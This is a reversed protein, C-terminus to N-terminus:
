FKYAFRFGYVGGVITGVFGGVLVGYLAPYPFDGDEQPFIFEAIFSGSVGIVVMGIIADALTFYIIEPVNKLVKKKPYSLYGGILGGAIAGAIGYGLKVDMDNGPSNSGVISAGAMSGLCVGTIVYNLRKVNIGEVEYPEFLQALAQFPIIFVVILIKM